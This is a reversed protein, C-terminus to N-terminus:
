QNPFLHGKNEDNASKLENVTEILMRDLNRKGLAKTIIPAIFRYSDEGVPQVFGMKILIDISKRLNEYLIREIKNKKCFALIQYITFNDKKTSAAFYAILKETLSRINQHISNMVIRDFDPAGDIKGFIHRDITRINNFQAESVIVSCYHQIYNPIGGTEQYIARAIGENLKIKMSEMPREILEMSDEKNFQAIHLAQSFNWFNGQHKQMEEWVARYGTQIFRYGVSHLMRQFKVIAECESSEIMADIEDLMLHIGKKYKGVINRFYNQIHVEKSKHKSWKQYANKWYDSPSLASVMLELFANLNNVGLCSLFIARGSNPKNVDITFKKNNYIYELHRLLSTKGMRRSGFIVYNTNENSTVKDIETRRGFFKDGFVVADTEYPSITELSCQKQLEGLLLEKVKEASDVGALVNEDIFVVPTVIEYEPKKEGIFFVTKSKGKLDLFEKSQEFAATDKIYYFPTSVGLKLRLRSLDYHRIYVYDTQQAYLKVQDFARELNEFCISWLYRSTM